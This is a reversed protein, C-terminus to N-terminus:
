RKPLFITSFKGLKGFGLIVHFVPNDEREPSGSDSGIDEEGVCFVQRRFSCSNGTPLEQSIVGVEGDGRWIRIPFISLMMVGLPWPRLFTMEMTVRNNNNYNNYKNVRVVHHGSQCKTLLIKRTMAWGVQSCEEVPSTMTLTGTPLLELERASSFTKLLLHHHPSTLLMKKMVTVQSNSSNNDKTM